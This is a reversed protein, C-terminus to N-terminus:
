PQNIILLFFAKEVTEVDNEATQRVHRSDQGRLPFLLIGSMPFPLSFEERTPLYFEGGEISFFHTL